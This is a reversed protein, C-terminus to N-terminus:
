LRTLIEAEGDRVLITHEFHASLSGDYTVVTWGDALVRTRWDGVNVMPELALTMGARLRVGRGPAGFNLVQLGEHMERGIGHGTYERVVSFGRSEVYSQIAHSIDGLRNGARAAAIGAYLAGETVEMLRRALDSVKGVPVTIAADGHYGQYIAGVDVSLIQGEELVRQRSPIGHVVENDVSACITAPFPPRDSGGDYGKFSPVGGEARIIREALEDLEGTTIGPRVQERIAELVKAVIQGARRM